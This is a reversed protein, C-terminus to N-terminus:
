LLKRNDSPVKPEGEFYMYKDVLVMKDQSVFYYKQWKEIIDKSTDLVIKSQFVLTKKQYLSHFLVNGVQWGLRFIKPWYIAFLYIQVTDHSFRSKAYAFVFACCIIKM